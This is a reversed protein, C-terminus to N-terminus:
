MCWSREKFFRSQKTVREIVPNNKALVDDASSILMRLIESHSVGRVDAIKELQKLQKESLRVAAIGGSVM